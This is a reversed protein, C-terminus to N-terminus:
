RPGPKSQENDARKRGLLEDLDRRIWKLEVEIRSELKDLRQHALDIKIQDQARNLEHDTLRKGYGSLERRSAFEKSAKWLLGAVVLPGVISLITLITALISLTKLIGELTQANM